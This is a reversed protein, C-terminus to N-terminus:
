HARSEAPLHGTPIGQPHARAEKLDRSQQRRGRCPHALSGVHSSGRSEASMVCRCGVQLCAAVLWRSMGGALSEKESRLM